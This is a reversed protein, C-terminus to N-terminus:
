QISYEMVSLIIGDFLMEISEDSNIYIPFHLNQFVTNILTYNSLYTPPCDNCSCNCYQISGINNTLNNPTVSYDILGFKVLVQEIAQYNCVWDMPSGSAGCSTYPLTFSLATNAQELNISEVKWYKLTDPSYVGIGSIILARSNPNNGSSSSGSSSVSVTEHRVCRINLLEMGEAKGRVADSLRISQYSYIQDWSWGIIQSSNSWLHNSTRTGPVIGGGGAVYQIEELTPVVWNNYGGEQLSDCYLMADGLNMTSASQESLAVAKEGDSVITTNGGSSTTTTTATSDLLVGEIKWTKGNPVTEEATIIKTQVFVLSNGNTTPVINFELASISVVQNGIEITAMSDLWYPFSVDQSVNVASGNVLITQAKVYTFSLCLILLITYKKM